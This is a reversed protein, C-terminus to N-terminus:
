TESELRESELTESEEPVAGIALVDDYRLLFSNECNPCRYAYGTETREVRAAELKLRDWCLRCNMFVRSSNPRPNTRRDYPVTENDTGASPPSPNVPGKRGG